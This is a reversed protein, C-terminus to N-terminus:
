KCTQVTCHLPLVTYNVIFKLNFFYHPKSYKFQSSIIIIKCMYKHLLQKRTNWKKRKRKRKYNHLWNLSGRNLNPMLNGVCISSKKRCRSKSGIMVLINWTLSPTPLYNSPIFLSSLPLPSVTIPFPPSSSILTCTCYFRSCYEM